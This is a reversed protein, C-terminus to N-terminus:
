LFLNLTAVKEKQRMWLILPCCCKPSKNQNIRFLEKLLLPLPYIKLIQPHFLPPLTHDKQNKRYQISGHGFIGLSENL